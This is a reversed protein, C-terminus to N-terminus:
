GRGRGQAGGPLPVRIEGVVASQLGTIEPAHPGPVLQDGEITVTAFGRHPVAAVQQYDGLRVSEFFYTQIPASAYNWWAAGVTLRDSWTEGEDGSVVFETRAPITMKEGGGSPWSSGSCTVHSTDVEDFVLGIRGYKDAAVSPLSVVYPSTYVLSKAWTRGADDSRILYFDTPGSSTKRVTNVTIITRGNLVAYQGSEGVFEVPSGCFPADPASPPTTPEPGFPGSWTLGRDTSTFARIGGGQAAPVDSVVVITGDALQVMQTGFLFPSVGADDLVANSWTQGGDTSREFLLQAEGRPSPLGFGANRLLLYALKPYTNDALIEPKDDAKLPNASFVAPSWQFKGGRSTHEIFTPDQYNIPDAYFNIQRLGSFYVTGAAGWSAWPDASGDDTIDTTPPLGTCTNIGVPLSSQWTRGGDKTFATNDPGSQNDTWAAVQENPNWPNVALAPESTQPLGSAWGLVPGPQPTICGLTAWPSVGSVNVV